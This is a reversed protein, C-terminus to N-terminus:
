KKLVYINYLFDLQNNLIRNEEKLETVEAQLKENREQFKKRQINALDKCKQIETEEKKETTPSKFFVASKSSVTESVTVVTYCDNPILIGQQLDLPRCDNKYLSFLFEKFGEESGKDVPVRKASTLWSNYADKYGALDKSENGCTPMETESIILELDNSNQRLYTYKM